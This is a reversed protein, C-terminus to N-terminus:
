PRDSYHFSMVIVYPWDLKLKIYLPRGDSRCHSGIMEYGDGHPPDHLRVPGRLPYGQQLLEMIYDIMAQETPNEELDRFVELGNRLARKRIEWRPKLIAEIMERRVVANPDETPSM